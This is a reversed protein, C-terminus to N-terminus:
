GKDDTKGREPVLTIAIALAMVACGAYEVPKLIEHLFALGALLSFVTESSLIISASNPDTYKQGLMQLTFGLAGSVVGTYLIPVLSGMCNAWTIDGPELILAPIFSLLGILLFQMCSLKVIDLESYRDIVHLYAAYAFAAALMWMDGRNIGGIGGTMTMLYLGAMAAAVAVWMKATVKKGLFLGMVPTLFIYLATIFAAKGCTTYQLGVQQSIICGGLFVFCLVAPLITRVTDKRWSYEPEEKLKKKEGSGALLMLCLGSLTCRVATFSFPGMLEMGTQQAVLGAGWVAATILLIINGRNM